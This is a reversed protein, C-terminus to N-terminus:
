RVLRAVLDVTVVHCRGPKVTVGSQTWRQYGPVEVVVEYIGPREYAMSYRVPVGGLMTAVEQYTGDHAEVRGSTSLSAASLSDVATVTIGASASATCDEDDSAPTVSQRCASACALVIAVLAFRKV